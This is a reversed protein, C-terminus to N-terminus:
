EVDVVSSVREISDEIFEVNDITLEITDNPCVEM